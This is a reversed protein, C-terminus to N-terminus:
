LKLVVFKLLLLLGTCSYLVRISNIHEDIMMRTIVFKICMALAQRMGNDWSLNIKAECNLIQFNSSNKTNYDIRLYYDHFLSFGIM